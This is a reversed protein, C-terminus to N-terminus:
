LFILQFVLGHLAAGVYDGGATRYVAVEKSAAVAVVVAVVADNVDGRTGEVEAVIYAHGDGRVVLGMGDDALVFGGSRGDGDFAIDIGTAIHSRDTKGAVRM